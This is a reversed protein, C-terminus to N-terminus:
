KSMMNNPIQILINLITLDIRQRKLQNLVMRGERIKLKIDTSATTQTNQNHLLMQDGQISLLLVIRKNHLIPNKRKMMTITITRLLLLHHTKQIGQTSSVSQNLM